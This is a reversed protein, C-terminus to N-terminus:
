TSHIYVKELKNPSIFTSTIDSHRFPILPFRQRSNQVIKSCCQSLLHVFRQTQSFTMNGSLIISSPGISLQRRNLSMTFIAGLYDISIIRFSIWQLFISDFHFKWQFRFLRSLYRILAAVLAAVSLIMLDGFIAWRGVCKM